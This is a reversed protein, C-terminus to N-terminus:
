GQEADIFAAIGGTKHAEAIIHLMMTTKGSAAARSAVPGLAADLSISGTSIVAVDLANPEARLRM